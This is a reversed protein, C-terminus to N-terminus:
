FHMFPYRVNMENVNGPKGIMEFSKNTIIEHTNGNIFAFSDVVMAVNLKQRPVQQFLYLVYWNPHKKGWKKTNDTVSHIFVSSIFQRCADTKMEKQWSMESSQEYLM